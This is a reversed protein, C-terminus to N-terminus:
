FYNRTPRCIHEGEEMDWQYTPIKIEVHQWPRRGGEETNATETSIEQRQSKNDRASFAAQMEAIAEAEEDLQQQEAQEM